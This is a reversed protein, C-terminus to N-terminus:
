EGIYKYTNVPVSHGGNTHGAKEFIPYKSLIQTVTGITPQKSYFNGQQNKESLLRELIQKATLTESGLVRIIRKCNYGNYNYYLKNEKM